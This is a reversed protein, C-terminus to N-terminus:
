YETPLLIVDNTFFFEWVGEPADTFEIAREYKVNYDGDTCILTATNSATVNLKVVALSDRMTDLIEPQTAIIDLLWYAGIQDAFYKVGDTYMVRPNLPYRYWNETGTFQQLETKLQATNTM